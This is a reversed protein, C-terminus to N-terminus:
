ERNPNLYKNRLQQKINEKLILGDESAELKKYLGNPIDEIVGEIAEQRVKHIYKKIYDNHEDLDCLDGNCCWIKKDSLLEEKWNM